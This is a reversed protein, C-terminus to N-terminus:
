EFKSPTSWDAVFSEFANSKPHKAATPAENLKEAFIIEAAVRLFVVKQFAYTVAWVPEVKIAHRVM